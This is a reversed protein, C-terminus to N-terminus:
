RNANVAGDQKAEASGSFADHVFFVLLKQTILQTTHRLTRRLLLSRALLKRRLTTMHRTTQITILTKHAIQKLKSHTSTELLRRSFLKPLTLRQSIILLMQNNINRQKM